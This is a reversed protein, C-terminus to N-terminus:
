KDKLPVGFIWESATNFDVENEDKCLDAWMADFFPRTFTRTAANNGKVCVQILVFFETKSLGGSSDKDIKTFLKQFRKTSKCRDILLPKISAIMQTYEGPAANPSAFTEEEEEEEKVVHVVVKSLLPEHQRSAGDNENQRETQAELQELKRQKLREMLRRSSTKLRKNIKEKHKHIHTAADEILVNTKHYDIARDFIRKSSRRTLHNAKGGLKKVHSIPAVVAQIVQDSEEDDDGNKLKSSAFCPLAKLTMYCGSISVGSFLLILIIDIIADDYEGTQAGSKGRDVKLTFGILLTACTSVTAITQMIDVETEEYPKTQMLMILFGSAIILGVLVQVSSNPAVLVLGGTLMAKQIMIIAEFWWYRPEYADYLAGFVNAFDQSKKQLEPSTNDSVALLKKNRFLILISGLPIGVVYVWAFLFMLASMAAHDGEDCVVSYDAVLYREQGIKQCKFTTFVRTVIGPYLLFVITVLTSKAKSWILKSKNGLMAVVASSVVVVVCLPLIAMHFAAQKLYSTHLLCPDIPALFDMFNFNVFTLSKLFNLTMPPWPIDFSFVLASTIQAYGILIRLRHGLSRFRHATLEKLAMEGTDTEIEEGTTDGCAEATSEEIRGDVEGEVAEAATMACESTSSGTKLLLHHFKRVTHALHYKARKQSDDNGNTKYWWAQIALTAMTARARQQKEKHGQEKVKDVKSTVPAVKSTTNKQKSTMKPKSKALTQGDKNEQDESKGEEMKSKYFYVVLVLFLLFPPLTAVIIIGRTGDTAMDKNACLMCVGNQRVFGDDCVACLIGGHGPACQQNVTGGVCDEGGCVFFEESAMDPRFWGAAAPVTSLTLNAVSCNTQKAPCEVCALESRRPDRYFSIKCVCSSEQTCGEIKNTTTRDPCQTCDASSSKKEENSFTDEPCDKCARQGKDDQYTGVLCDECTGDQETPGFKGLDCLQCNAKGKGTTTAGKGKEEDRGCLHCFRVNQSPQAWGIPCAECNEDDDIFQGAQCASCVSSGDPSTRGQQCKSCPFSQNVDASFTNEPCMTCKKQGQQNNFWGASFITRLSLLIISFTLM